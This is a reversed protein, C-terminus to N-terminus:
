VRREGSQARRESHMGYSFYAVSPALVAVATILVNTPWSLKALLVALNLLFFGFSTMLWLICVKDVSAQWKIRVFATGISAWLCALVLSAVSRQFVDANEWQHLALSIDM